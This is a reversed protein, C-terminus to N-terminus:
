TVDIRATERHTSGDDDTWAFALEGSEAAVVHFVILPNAAVGPFLDARFVEEGNYACTFRNLIKRPLLRGANDRRHGSEMAHQILTKIELVQGRKAQKPVAIRASAV